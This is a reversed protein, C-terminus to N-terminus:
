SQLRALDAFFQPHSIAAASAGVVITEGDALCGAVGWAM